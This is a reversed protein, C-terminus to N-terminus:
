VIRPTPIKSFGEVGFIREAALSHRVSALKKPKSVSGVSCSGERIENKNESVSEQPCKLAREAISFPDSQIRNFNVMKNKERASAQLFRRSVVVKLSPFERVILYRCVRHPKNMRDLVSVEFHCSIVEDGIQSRSQPDTSVSRTTTACGFGRRVSRAGQTESSSKRDLNEMKDPSALLIWSVNEGEM